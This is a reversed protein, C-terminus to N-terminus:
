ATYQDGYSPTELHLGRKALLEEIVLLNAGSVGSNAAAVIARNLHGETIGYFPQAAAVADGPVDEALIYVFDTEAPLGADLAQAFNGGKTASFVITGRVYINPDAAALKCPVTLLPKGGLNLSRPGTSTESAAILDEAM